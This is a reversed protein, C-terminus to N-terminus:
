VGGFLNDDAIREVCGPGENRPSNVRKSVPRMTLREAAVPRLLRKVQKPDTLDPDLWVAYDAPELIVPMRDHLERVLENATTTLITCSELENGEPDQWAEWLGAMGMPEGSAMQVLYPQKTGDPLKKWEYFGDAPLVCRRYRMAGRFAQRTDASESRANVMRNGIKIDDAWSPVLGWRVFDIWRQHQGEPGVKQERVVLVPQTPAINYRAAVEVETFAAFHEELLEVQTTLVFRGCM